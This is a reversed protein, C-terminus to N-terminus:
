WISSVSGDESNYSSAFRQKCQRAKHGRKGCVFCTPPRRGKAACRKRAPAVKDHVDKLIAWVSAASDQDLVMLMMLEPMHSLVEALANWNADASAFHPEAIAEWVDMAMLKEKMM